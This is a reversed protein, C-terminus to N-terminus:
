VIGGAQLFRCVVPHPEARVEQPSGCAVIRGEHLMAIRDAIHFVSVLDHSVVLSTVKLRRTTDVILTDITEAM